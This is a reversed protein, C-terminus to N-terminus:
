VSLVVYSQCLLAGHITIMSEIILTDILIRAPWDNVPAVCRQDM